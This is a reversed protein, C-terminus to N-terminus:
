APPMQAPGVAVLVDVRRRVLDAALVPLRDHGAEAWRFEVAVSRAGVFGAQALGQLFATRLTAAFHGGSVGGLLIGVAPTPQQPQAALPWALACGVLLLVLAGWRM